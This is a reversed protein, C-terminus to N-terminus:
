GTTCVTEKRASSFERGAMRWCRYAPEWKVLECDPLRVPLNGEVAGIVTLM